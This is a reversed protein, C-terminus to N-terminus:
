SAVFTAATIHSAAPLSYYVEIVTEGTTAATGVLTLVAEITRAASQYRSEWHGSPLTGVIYAGPKGGHCVFSISEGALLDTAKMDFAAFYGDPDTDDGVDLTASTGSNWLAVQHIVIDLLVAGAPLALSLSHTGAAGGASVNMTGRLVQVPSGTLARGQLTLAGTLALTSELVTAGDVNLSGVEAAGSIALSAGYIDRACRIGERHTINTNTPVATIAM